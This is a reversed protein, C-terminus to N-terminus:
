RFKGKHATWVLAKETSLGSLKRNLGKMEAFKRYEMQSYIRQHYQCLMGM